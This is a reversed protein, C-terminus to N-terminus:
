LKVPTLRTPPSSEISTIVQSYQMGRICAHDASGPNPVKVLGTDSWPKAFVYCTPGVRRFEVYASKTTNLQALDCGSVPGGFVLVKAFTKLEAKWDKTAQGVTYGRRNDGVFSCGLLQLGTPHPDRGLVFDRFITARAVWEEKGTGGANHFGFLGGTTVYCVALCGSISPFGLRDADFGAERENLFQM